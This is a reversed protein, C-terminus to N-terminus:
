LQPPSHQSFSYTFACFHQSFRSWNWHDKKNNNTLMVDVLKLHAWWYQSLLSLSMEHDIQIELSNLVQCEESHDKKQKHSWSPIFHYSIKENKLINKEYCHVRSPKQKLKKLSSSDFYDKKSLAVFSGNQISLLLTKKKM